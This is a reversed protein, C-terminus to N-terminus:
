FYTVDKKLKGFCNLIIIFVCQVTLIKELILAIKLFALKKRQKIIQMLSLKQYIM